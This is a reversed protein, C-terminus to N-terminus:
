LTAEIAKWEDSAKLAALREKPDPIEDAFRAALAELDKKKTAM